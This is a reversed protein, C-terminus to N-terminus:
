TLDLPGQVGFARAFTSVERTGQAFGASFEGLAESFTQIRTKAFEIIRPQLTSSAATGSSFISRLDTGAARMDGM